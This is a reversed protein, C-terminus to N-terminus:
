HLRFESGITRIEAPGILRCHAVHVSHLPGEIEREWFELFRYLCPFKPALDYFQWVFTQLVSPHDPMGYLISATTLGYGELQQKFEVPVMERIEEKRARGAFRRLLRSSTGAPVRIACDAKVFFGLGFL